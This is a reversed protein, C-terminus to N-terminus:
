TFIEPSPWIVYAMVEDATGQLESGVLRSSQDHFTSLLRVCTNAM